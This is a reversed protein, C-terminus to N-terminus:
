KENLFGTVTEMWKESENKLLSEHGSKEYIVLKKQSSALNQYIAITEAESVRKDIRGWQLLVPTHVQRAYEYPKHNFAWFGQELGGWFTLLTSLPQQPLQMMRLRGKVADNLSGFSMEIIIKSPQIDKYDEMAKLISAAGMSVGWLIIKKEGKAKVFDVTAKVDAAENYGITCVNGSSNGHARFDVMCVAYGLQYFAMAERIVGDKNGAHGHFLIVTGKATDKKAYWGELKQGDTTNIVFTQHAIHFSDATPKSPFDIGFLIASTKQLFSMKEPPTIVVQNPPYFHTFKYAHFAAMVNLLVFLSLLLWGIGKLLKKM